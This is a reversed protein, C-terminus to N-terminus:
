NAARMHRSRARIPAAGRKNAVIGFKPVTYFFQLDYGTLTYVGTDMTSRFTKSYNSDYGTLTFLGRDAVLRSTRILGADYGTLTFSGTDASVPRNYTFGVDYGTFTFAGTDADVNPPYYLNATGSISFIGADAGLFYAGSFSPSLQGLPLQGVVSHGLM